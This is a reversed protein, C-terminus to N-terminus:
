PFIDPPLIPIVAGAQTGAPSETDAPGPEPAATEPPLGPAASEPSGPVPQSAPGPETGAAGPQAAQGGPQSAAPDGATERVWDIPLETELPLPETVPVAATEGPGPLAQAGSRATPLVAEGSPAPEAPRAARWIVIGLALLLAAAPLIWVRKKM